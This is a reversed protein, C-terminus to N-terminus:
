HINGIGGEVPRLVARRYKVTQYVSRFVLHAYYAAFLLHVCAAGEPRLLASGALWVAAFAFVCGINSDRM